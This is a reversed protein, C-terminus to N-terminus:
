AIDGFGLQQGKKISQRSRNGLAYDIFKPPLGDGPRRLGLNDTTFVEGEQIDRLATVSRRALRRMEKEAPTPRILPDGLTQHATRIAEVWLRADGPNASFWHDPGPLDNDLTFHKEFACAGLGCAVAAALHGQTHDSFGLVLGPFAGALTRLKLLNTDSPPTPYQSTCLMLLVPHGRLAGTADMAEYVEALDAMGCSVMLPLGCQAYRKLLSLNTFDDSGVKVATVGLELLLDLDSANQPTSLFLIGEDDCARKVEIWQARSFEYRRFMELMSETVQEGRSRYTFTLDPDGVFEDARFTQFKIADAGAQKASRIMQLARSLDGNHNIGAELMVFPPDDPGITRDGIRISNM